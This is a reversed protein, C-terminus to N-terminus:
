RVIAKGNWPFMVSPCTSVTTATRFRAHAGYREAPTPLETSPSSCDDTLPRKTGPCHFMPRVLTLPNPPLTRRPPTLPYRPVEPEEGPRPRLEEQVEDEPRPRNRKGIEQAQLRDGGLVGGTHKGIRQDPERHVREQDPRERKVLLRPGRDTELVEHAEEHGDAQICHHQEKHPQAERAHDKDRATHRDDCTRQGQKEETARTQRRAQYVLSRAPLCGAARSPDKNCSCAL